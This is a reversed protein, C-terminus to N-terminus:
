WKKSNKSTRFRRFIFFSLGEIKSRAVVALEESKKSIQPKFSCGEGAANKAEGGVPQDNYKKNVHFRVFKKYFSNCDKETLNLAGDASFMPGTMVNEMPVRLIAKLAVKLNSKTVGDRKEGELTKWLEPVLEEDAASIVCGMTKLFKSLDEYTLTEKPVEKSCAEFEREFRKQIYAADASNLWKSDDAATGATGPEQQEKTIRRMADNYLKEDVRGDRKLGKAKESIEPKFTPAAKKMGARREAKERAPSQGVLHFRKGLLREHASGLGQALVRSSDNINPKNQLLQEELVEKEKVKEVYFQEKKKLHDHQKRMFEQFSFEETRDGIEPQFTCEKEREAKIM